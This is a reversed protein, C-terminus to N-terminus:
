LTAYKYNVLKRFKATKTIYFSYFYHKLSNMVLQIPLLRLCIKIFQNYYHFEKSYWQYNLLIKERPSVYEKVLISEM